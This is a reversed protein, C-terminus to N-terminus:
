RTPWSMKRAPRISYQSPLHAIVPSPKRLEKSGTVDLGPRVAFAIALTEVDEITQEKRRIEVCCKVAAVNCHGIVSYHDDGGRKPQAFPPDEAKGFRKTQPGRCIPM